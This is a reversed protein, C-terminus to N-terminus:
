YNLSFAIRNTIQFNYAFYRYQSLLAATAINAIRGIIPEGIPHDKKIGFLRIASFAPLNADYILFIICIDESVITM